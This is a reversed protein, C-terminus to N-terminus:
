TALNSCIPCLRPGMKGSVIGAAFLRWAIKGVPERLSLAVLVAAHVLHYLVATEWTAARGNRELLEHFGHAGFAGLAVGLFGLVASFRLAFSPHM